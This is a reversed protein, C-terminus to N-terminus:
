FLYCFYFLLLMPLGEGGASSARSPGAIGSLLPAKPAVGLGVRALDVGAPVPMEGDLPM